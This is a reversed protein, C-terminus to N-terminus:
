YLKFKDVVVEEAPQEIFKNANICEQLWAKEKSTAARISKMKPWQLNSNHNFDKRGVNIRSGQPYIIIHKYNGQAVYIEGPVLEEMKLGEM